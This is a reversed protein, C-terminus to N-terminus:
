NVYTTTTRGQIVTEPQWFRKASCTLVYLHLCLLKQFFHGILKRKQNKNTRFNSKIAVTNVFSTNHSM